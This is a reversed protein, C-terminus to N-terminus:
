VLILSDCIRLRQNRARPLLKDSGAVVDALENAANEAVVTGAGAEKGAFPADLSPGKDALSPLILCALERRRRPLHEM